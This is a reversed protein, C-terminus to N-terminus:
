GSLVQHRSRTGDANSRRDHSGIIEEALTALV